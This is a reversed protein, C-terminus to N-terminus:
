VKLISRMFGATAITIDANAKLAKIYASGIVAGAAYRCVTEFSERDNIGFGILIPNKLKMGALKEFYATKDAMSGANGTVSSSSVAYLFGSSLKDAKQIRAKSTQPSILFIFSLKYKEFLSRYTKEYEYIPMDPLIIGSVGAAVADRCFKEIGYQLVPNLYGMLIVPVYIQPKIAKIQQFIVSLLIGNELAAMNSKQIVLGDAVPDSYPIGVEIIDAGNGQLALMIEKTSEKAPFGATFYM